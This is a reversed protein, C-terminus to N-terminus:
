KSKNSNKVKHRRYFDQVGVTDATHVEAGIEAEAVAGLTVLKGFCTVGTSLRIPETVADKYSDKNRTM